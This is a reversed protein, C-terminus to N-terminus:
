TSRLFSGFSILIWFTLLVLGAVVPFFLASSIVYLFTTLGAFINM